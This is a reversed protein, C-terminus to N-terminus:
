SKIIFKLTGIGSSNIKLGKGSIIGDVLVTESKELVEITKGLESSPLKLYANVSNELFDVCYIKTGDVKIFYAKEAGICELPKMISYGGSYYASEGTDLHVQNDPNILHSYTKNGNVFHIPTSGKHSLDGLGVERNTYVAVLDNENSIVVRDGTYPLASSDHRLGDDIFKGVTDESFYIEGGPVLACTMQLGTYNGMNLPENATCYVSVEINNTTITYVVTELLSDSKAGTDPNIRNRASVYNNVVIKVEDGYLVSGDKIMEGDLFYEESVPRATAHGGSGVTGHNGGVTGAFTTTGGDAVLTAYPSVWDTNLTYRTSLNNFNDTLSTSAERYFAKPHIINNIGLRNFEVIENELANYRYKVQIKDGNKLVALRERSLSTERQPLNEQTILVSADLHYVGVDDISLLEDGENVVGNTWEPFEESERFTARIYGDHTPIFSYEQRTPFDAEGVTSNPIVVKDVTFRALMRIKSLNIQVNRKVPIYDSLYYGEADVENGTYPNINTNAKGKTKDLLNPYGILFTTKSPPISKDAYKYRTLSGDKIEIGQYDGFDEWASGNWVYIKAPDTERVLAVGPAGNPYTTQLESLTNMFISPGGDLLTAVWSDFESQSVSEQLKRAWRLADDPSLGMNVGLQITMETMQALTERVDIGYAKSRIYDPLDLAKIGKILEDTTLHSFDTGAM